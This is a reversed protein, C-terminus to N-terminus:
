VNNKLEFQLARVTQSEIELREKLNAEITKARAIEVNLNQVRESLSDVQDTLQLQLVHLRDMQPETQDDSELITSPHIRPSDLSTQQQRSVLDKELLAKCEKLEEQLKLHKFEAAILNKECKEFELQQQAKKHTLESNAQQLREFEAKM